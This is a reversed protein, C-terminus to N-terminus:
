SYPSKYAVVAGSTLTFATFHGYITSGAPLAFSATTDGTWDSATLVSFVAATSAWIACFNQGTIATTGSEYIAGAFNGVTTPM